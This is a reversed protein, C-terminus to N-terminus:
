AWATYALVPLLAVMSYATAVVTVRWGQARVEEWYARASFAKFSPRAGFGPKLSRDGPPAQRHSRVVCGVVGAQAYLYLFLVSGMWLVAAAYLALALGWHDLLFTASSLFAEEGTAEPPIRAAIAVGLGVLGAVLPLVLAMGVALAAGFSIIALEPNSTSIKVGRILARGPDMIGGTSM